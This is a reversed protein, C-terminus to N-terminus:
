VSIQPNICAPQVKSSCSIFFIFRSSSLSLYQELRRFISSSALDSLTCPTVIGTITSSALSKVLGRKRTRVNSTRVVQVANLRTAETSCLLVVQFLVKLIKQINMQHKKKVMVRSM